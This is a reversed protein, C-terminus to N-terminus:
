RAGLPSCLSRDPEAATACGFRRVVEMQSARLVWVKQVEEVALSAAALVSGAGRKDLTPSVPSAPSIRSFEFIVGLKQIQSPPSSVILRCPSSRSAPWATLLSTPLSPPPSPRPSRLRRRHRLDSKSLPSSLTQRSFCTGTTKKRKPQTIQHPAAPAPSPMNPEQRDAEVTLLSGM